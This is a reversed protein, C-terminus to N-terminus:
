SFSQRPPALLRSQGNRLLFIAVEIALALVVPAAVVPAGDEEKEAHLLAGLAAVGLGIWVLRRM